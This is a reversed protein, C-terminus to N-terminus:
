PVPRSEGRGTIELAEGPGLEVLEAVLSELEGERFAGIYRGVVNGQPDLFVTEPAGNVGYRKAIAGSADRVSPYPIGYEEVFELAEERGDLINVGLFAVEDHERAARAFAPAEERCPDCWSAWFNLIAPRGRLDDPGLAGDPDALTPLSFPPAPGGPEADPRARFLAVGGLVFLIAVPAVWLLRRM